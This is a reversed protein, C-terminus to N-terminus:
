WIRERWTHKRATSRGRYDEDIVGAGIGIGHFVALGSRPAIRGYSKEPVSIALDTLVMGRGCAPITTNYAAALDYGAALESKRVPLTAHESLRQVKLVM